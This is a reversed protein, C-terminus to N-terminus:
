TAIYNACNLFALEREKCAQKNFPFSNAWWWIPARHNTESWSLATAIPAFRKPKNKQRDTQLLVIWPVSVHNLNSGNLQTGPLFPFLSFSLYRNSLWARQQAYPSECLSEQDTPTWPVHLSPSWLCLVILTCLLYCRSKPVGPRRRKSYVSDEDLGGSCLLLQEENIRFYFNNFTPDAPRRQPILYLIWARHTAGDQHSCWYDHCAGHLEQVALVVPYRLAKSTFVASKTKIKM